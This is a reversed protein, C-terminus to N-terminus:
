EVLIVGMVPIEEENLILNSKNGNIETNEIDIIGDIALLRTDIQSLRVITDTSKEWEKRLELLYDSIAKNANDSVSDWSYGDDFTITTKINVTTAIATTVTVVHGIPAIGVGLGSSALPDLIDQVKEILTKSAVNFESDLIIVKVTGGGNWVPLIKTAGVGDIANTKTTYDKKNGGYAKADFSDFYRKRFVEVEEMDEGPILLETIEAKTLGDIYEVPIITGFYQNGVRGKTECIIEYHYSDIRKTVKYILEEKSFRSGIPVDMNFEAKLAANTPSHPYLGREEARRQLFEYSATDAFSENIINDFEIYMNKLEVAAPSLANWILSGERKDYKDSIGNLMRELITEYTIDEYM